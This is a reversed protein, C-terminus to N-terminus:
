FIWDVSVHALFPTNEMGGGLAGVEMMPGGRPAHISLSPGPIYQPLAEQEAFSVFVANKDDGPVTGDHRSSLGFSAATQAPTLDASPTALELSFRGADVLGISEIAVASGALTVVMPARSKAALPSAIGACCM